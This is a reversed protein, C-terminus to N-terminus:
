DPKEMTEIIEAGKDTVSYIRNKNRRPTLCIVIKREVMERLARSVHSLPHDLGDSIQTPTKPKGSLYLLAKRRYKSGIVFSYSEWNM